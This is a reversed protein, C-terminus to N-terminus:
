SIVLMILTINKSINANNINIKHIRIEKLLYNGIL